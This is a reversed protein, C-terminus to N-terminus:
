SILQLNSLKCVAEKIEEVALPPNKWSEKCVSYQDFLGSKGEIEVYEYYEGTDLSVFLLGQSSNSVYVNEVEIVRREKMKKM